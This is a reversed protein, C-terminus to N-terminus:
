DADRFNDKLDSKKVEWMMHKSKIWELGDGPTQEPSGSFGGISIVFEFTM